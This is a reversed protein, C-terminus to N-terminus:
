RLLRHLFYFKDHSLGYIGDQWRKWKKRPQNHFHQVYYRYSEAFDERYNTRAYESAVLAGYTGFISMMTVKNRMAYMVVHGCEHIVTDELPGWTAREPDLWMKRRGAMAIMPNGNRDLGLEEILIEDVDCLPAREIIHRAQYKLADSAMVTPVLLSLLLQIM